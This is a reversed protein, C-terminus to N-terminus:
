VKLVQGSARSGLSIAATLERSGLEDLRSYRGGLAKALEVALGLRIFGQESDIVWAPIGAQGIRGAIALAEEAPDAGHLSVNARGDSVLVLLPALDADRARAAQLFEYGLALGQALPTKGGTPLVQLKKRAREVSRTSGLVIEASNGRFAILAVKDRKQYADELLSFIAGKVVKIRREVGMSGSLDVLFLITHGIRKERVKERLDEPLVKVALGTGERSFREQPRSAAARLTAVLAIDRAKGQPRAARVFRGQGTQSRTRSRKGSGKRAKRVLPPFTFRIAFREEAGELREAATGGWTPQVASRGQRESGESRDDAGGGGEDSSPVSGTEVLSGESSENDEPAAKSRQGNGSAEGSSKGDKTGDKAGVGDEPEEGASLDDTQRHERNRQDARKRKEPHKKQGGDREEQPKHQQDGAETDQAGTEATRVRHPLVLHAAEQLDKLTILTRGGWAALARATEILVLEARNGACHGAATLDVALKLNDETVEVQVLHTRAEQVRRSLEEMSPMWKRVFAQPDAEFALYRRIIEKRAEAERYGDVEVYLGFRELLRPRLAGEEPNMTGVLVFRSPHLFSIGEQEVVNMGSAAAQALINALPENLLNVQDVYLIQGDARQLLGPELRRRGSTIAHEFDLSGVLRDATINLPLDVVERDPLLAALGRVLTSKATGKEGSILVGGLAPNIVGLILAKKVSEQGTVAPFPFIPTRSKM